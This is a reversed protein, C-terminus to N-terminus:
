SATLAQGSKQPPNGTGLSVWTASLIFEPGPSVGAPPTGPPRNERRREAEAAAAFRRREVFRVDRRRLLGTAVLESLGISPAVPTDLGRPIDDFLTIEGISIRVAGALQQVRPTALRKWGADDLSSPTTASTSGQGLSCASVVLVLATAGVYRRLHWQKPCSRSRPM